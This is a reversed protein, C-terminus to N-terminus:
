HGMAEAPRADGVQDVTGDPCTLPLTEAPLVANYNAGASPSVHGDTGM